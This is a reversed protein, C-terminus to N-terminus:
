LNVVWLILCYVGGQEQIILQHDIEDYPRSRSPFSAKRVTREVGEDARCEIWRNKDGRRGQSFYDASNDVFQM